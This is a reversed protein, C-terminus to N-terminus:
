KFKLKERKVYILFIFALTLIFTGTSSEIASSMFRNVMNQRIKLEDSLAMITVMFAKM